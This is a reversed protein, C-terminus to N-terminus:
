EEVESILSTVQVKFKDANALKTRLELIVSDKKAISTAIQQEKAVDVKKIEYKRMEVKPYPSNSETSFRVIYTYEYFYHSVIMGRRGDLISEVIDGISFPHDTITTRPSYDAHCGIFAFVFLAIFFINKM